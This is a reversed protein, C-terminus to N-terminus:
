LLQTEEAPVPVPDDRMGSFSGGDCYWLMVRNANAFRPNEALDTGLPGGGGYGFTPQQLALNKTTGILGVSRSLCDELSICWGGGKFYIVWRTAASANTAPAFYVAPPTGDLCVGGRLLDTRNPLLILQLSKNAAVTMAFYYEHLLIM